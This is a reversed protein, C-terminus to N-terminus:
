ELHRTALKEIQSHISFDSQYPPLMDVQQNNQIFWGMNMKSHNKLYPDHQLTHLYLPGCKGNVNKTGVM